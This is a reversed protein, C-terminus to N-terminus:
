GTKDLSFAGKEFLVKGDALIRDVAPFVDVHYRTKSPVLGPKKYVGHKEGLSLHLGLVREFATIDNLPRARSIARNLGLGFERVLPREDAKIKEMVSVFAPPADPGPEILGDRVIATFPEYFKVMFDADAFAYIKVEGNVRALDRAETFVEGIPYTGGINEMGEYNGINLKPEEMGGEWTLVSDGCEVRITQAESLIRKLGFGYTDLYSKDYRLAEIWTPWQEETMRDLHMHEITKLKRNFLEIRVRFDNLRFSTSQILVVIDGPTLTDIAQRVSMEGEKEFDIFQADPVALQYADAIVSSLGSQRDFVVLVRETPTRKIAQALIDKVHGAAISALPNV